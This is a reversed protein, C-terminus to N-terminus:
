RGDTEESAAPAEALRAGDSGDEGLMWHDQPGGDAFSRSRRITVPEATLDQVIGECLGTLIEGVEGGPDAQLFPVDIGVLNFAGKEFRAVGPGFLKRLRKSVERRALRMRLGRHAVYRLLGRAPDREALSRGVGHFVEDADGRRVVLAVLDAVESEAVRRGRRAEEDYRRIGRGVVDSLGLRRPLTISLDEDELYEEPRDAARLGELIALAVAADVQRDRMRAMRGQGHM